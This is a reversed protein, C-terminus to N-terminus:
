SRDQNFKLSRRLPKHNTANSHHWNKWCGPCFYRFCELSRCFYVGPLAKCSECLSDELFPDIQIIKVFKPTKIEVFNAQVAAMYSEETRFAVRGSGIPYKHKDTDLGAFIVNGFLENMISALAEATIMGHLAGVFVTFKNRINSQSGNPCFQSDSIVWPIVQISKTKFKPSTLKFYEGGNTPDRTCKALLQEVCSENDFLLYCYGKPSSRESSSDSCNHHSVYGGDKQPWLVTVSGFQCFATVLDESTSDWPVGGLFVKRSFCMSNYNRMPLNGQWIRISELKRSASNASNRYITAARDIDGEFNVPRVPYKSPLPPDSNRSRSYLQSIPFDPTFNVSQRSNQRSTMPSSYGYGNSLSSKASDYRAAYAAGQTALMDMLETNNKVEELPLLSGLCSLLNVNGASKVAASKRMNQLIESNNAELYTLFSRLLVPHTKELQAIMNQLCDTTPSNSNTNGHNFRTNSGYSGWENSPLLRNPLVNLLVSCLLYPEIDATGSNNLDLQGFSTSINDVASALSPPPINRNTLHNLGPLADVNSQSSTSAKPDSNLRAKLEVPSSSTLSESVSSYDTARLSSSRSTPRSGGDTLEFVSQQLQMMNEELERDQGSRSSSGGVPTTYGEGSLDSGFNLNSCHVPSINVHNLSNSYNSESSMRQLPTSHNQVEALISSEANSRRSAEFINKHNFGQFLSDNRVQRINRLYGNHLGSDFTTNQLRPQELSDDRLSTSRIEQEYRGVTSRLSTSPQDNGYAFFLEYDPASRILPPQMSQSSRAELSRNDLQESTNFKRENIGRSSSYPSNLAGSACGNVTGTETRRTICPASADLSIAPDRRLLFRASENKWWTSPSSM